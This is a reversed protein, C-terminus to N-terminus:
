RLALASSTQSLSSVSQCICVSVVATVCVGEKDRECVGEILCVRERM